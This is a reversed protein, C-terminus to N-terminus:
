RLADRFTTNMLDSSTHTTFETVTPRTFYNGHAYRATSFTGAISPDLWSKKSSALEVVRLEQM